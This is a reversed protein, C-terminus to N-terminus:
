ALWAIAPFPGLACLVATEAVAAAAAAAAAEGTAATVSPETRLSEIRRTSEARAGSWRNRNQM